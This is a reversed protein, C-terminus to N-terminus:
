FTRKLRTQQRQQSAQYLQQMAQWLVQQQARQQALENSFQGMVQVGMGSVALNQQNVAVAEGM